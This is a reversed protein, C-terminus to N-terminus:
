LLYYRTDVLIGLPYLSEGDWEGAFDVPYGGSLALLRWHEDKTLPLVFGSNDRIFWQKGQKGTDHCIPTANRLTCLFREQWPQRALMSAVQKFFDEITDTCSFREQLPFIEGQRAQLRARQPAAGPWFTLDARQRAGPPFVEPFPTQGFAFQLVLATRGSQSGLMWTWQERVKENADVRQGLILWDDTVTEGLASVEEQKIPKGILQRIDMQLSPELQEIQRFAYSLLALKGLAALLKEPWDASSNPIEGLRLVRSGLGELQADVMAARQEEWFSAPQTEVSALGNRILDNLWLDLLDLGKMMHAWRKEANKTASASPPAPSSKQSDKPEKPKSSAARKALWTAVWAPPESIPVAKPSDVALLLLGLGHKCPLKRSPCSCTITLTSLDIRVQYLASGQCEGWLAGTNQGLSKWHKINALKKGAAASSSDPALALVQDNSTLQLGM